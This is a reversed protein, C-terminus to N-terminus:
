FKKRLEVKNSNHISQILESRIKELEKLQSFYKEFYIKYNKVIDYTHKKLTNLYHTKEKKKLFIYENKIKRELSFDYCSDAIDFEIKDHLYPNLKLHNVWFNVM